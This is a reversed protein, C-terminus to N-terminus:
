KLWTLTSLGTLNQEKSHLCKFRPLSMQLGTITDAQWLVGVMSYIPKPLRAYQERPNCPMSEQVAIDPNSLLPRRRCLLLLRM